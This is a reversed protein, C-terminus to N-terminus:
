PCIWGLLLKGNSDYWGQLKPNGNMMPYYKMNVDVWANALGECNGTDKLKIEEIGTTSLLLIIIYKM